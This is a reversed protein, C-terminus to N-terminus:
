LDLGDWVRRLADKRQEQLRSSAPNSLLRIRNYTGECIVCGHGSLIKGLLETVVNEPSKADVVVVRIFMVYVQFHSRSARRDLDM